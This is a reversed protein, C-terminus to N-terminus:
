GDGRQWDGRCPGYGDGAIPHFLEAGVQTTPEDSRTIGLVVVRAPHEIKRDVAAWPGDHACCVRPIHSCRDVVGAVVCKGECHAAAAMAERVEAHDVASEDDIKRFHCTDADVGLRSNGANLWAGGGAVEGARRVRVTQREGGSIGMGHAHAPPPMPKMTRLYPRAMSLRSEAWTTVAAPSMRVALASSCGSRKQAIRPPPPFTPMTVSNM